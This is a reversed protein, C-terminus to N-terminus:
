LAPGIENIATKYSSISPNQPGEKVQSRRERPIRSATSKSPYVEFSPVEKPTDKKNGGSLQSHYPTPAGNNLPIFLVAMIFQALDLLIGLSSWFGEASFSLLEMEREAREKVVSM